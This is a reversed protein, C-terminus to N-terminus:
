VWEVVISRDPYILIRRVVAGLLRNVTNPEDEDIWDAMKYLADGMEDVFRAALQRSAEAQEQQTHLTQLRRDLELIRKSAEAPSFVGLEASEQM